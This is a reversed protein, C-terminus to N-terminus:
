RVTLNFTDADLITGLVGKLLVSFISCCVKSM